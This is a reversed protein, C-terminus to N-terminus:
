RTGKNMCENMTKEWLFTLEIFVLVTDMKRVQAKIGMKMKFTHHVPEPITSLKETERKEDM